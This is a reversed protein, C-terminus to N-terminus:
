RSPSYATRTPPPTAPLTTGSSAVTSTFKRKAGSRESSSAVSCTRCTNERGPGSTRACRRRARRAARGTERGSRLAKDLLHMRVAAATHAGLVAPGVDGAEGCAADRRDVEAGAVGVEGVGDVFVDRGGLDSRDGLM